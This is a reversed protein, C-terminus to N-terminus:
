VDFKLTGLPIKPLSFLLQLMKWRKGNPFLDAGTWQRWVKGWIDHSLNLPSDGTLEIPFSRKQLTFCSIECPLGERTSVSCGVFLQNRPKRRHKGAATSFCCDPFGSLWDADLTLGSMLAEAAVYKLWHCIRARKQVYVTRGVPLFRRSQRWHKM